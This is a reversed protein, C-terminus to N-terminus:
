KITSYKLKIFLTILNFHKGLKAVNRWRRRHVQLIERWFIPRGYYFIDVLVSFLGFPCQFHLPHCVHPCKSCNANGAVQFLFLRTNPCNREASSQSNSQCQIDFEISEIEIYESQIKILFRRLKWSNLGM